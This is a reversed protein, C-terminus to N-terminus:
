PLFSGLTPDDLFQLEVPAATSSDVVRMFTDCGERAAHKQGLQNWQRIHEASDLQWETWDTGNIDNAEELALQDAILTCTTQEQLQEATPEIHEIVHYGASLAEDANYM